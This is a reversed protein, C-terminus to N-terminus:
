PLRTGAATHWVKGLLLRKITDPIPPAKWRAIELEQVLDMTGSVRREGRRGMALVCSVEVRRELQKVRDLDASSM